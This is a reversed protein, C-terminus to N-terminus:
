ASMRHHIEDEEECGFDLDELKWDPDVQSGSWPYGGDVLKYNTYEPKDAIAKKHPIKISCTRGNYAYSLVHLLM